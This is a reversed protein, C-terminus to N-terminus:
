RTLESAVLRSLRDLSDLSHGELFDDVFPLAAAMGRATPEYGASAKLPNVWVIRHAVRALRQMQEALESPEGRDWGDSLIVVVAGRAMGRVGWDDNFRALAAGLRTGGSWDPVADAVRALAVDPDHTTLERTLRTLRTGIAFTEVDSGAVVAAHAFQMLVRSYLEMSGSIDALLVVRRPRRSPASSHRRIPEGGTRMSARITRRQDPRGGHRVPRRRRSRRLSGMLRLDSLLAALEARESDDLEAFDRSRLLDLDSHRLSRTVEDAATDEADSGDGGEDDGEDGDEHDDEADDDVGLVEQREITVMSMPAARGLWWAVFVEDYRDIEAPGHTLTIRGAWYLSAPGPTLLGLAEAYQVVSGVPVGLGASRLAALFGGVLEEASRDEAAVPDAPAPM